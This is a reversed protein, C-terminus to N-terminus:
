EGSDDEAQEEILRALESADEEVKLEDGITVTMSIKDITAPAREIVLVPPLFNMPGELPALEAFAEKMVENFAEGAERREQQQAALERSDPYINLERTIMAAGAHEKGAYTLVWSRKPHLYHLFGSGGEDDALIVADRFEESKAEPGFRMEIERWTRPVAFFAFEARTFERKM